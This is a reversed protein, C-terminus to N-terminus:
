RPTPQDQQSLGSSKIVAATRGPSKSLRHMRKYQEIFRTVFAFVALALVLLVLWVVMTTRLM